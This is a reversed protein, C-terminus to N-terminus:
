PPLQAGSSAGPALGLLRRSSAARAASTSSASRRAGRGAGRGDVGGALVRALKRAPISRAKRAPPAPPAAAASSHARRRAASTLRREPRRFWVCGCAALSRGGCWRGHWRGAPRAPEAKAVGVRQTEADPRGAPLLLPGPLQAGVQLAQLALQLARAARPPAGNSLLERARQPATGRATAVVAASAAAAVAPGAATTAFTTAARLLLHLGHWGATAAPARCPLPPREVPLALGRNAALRAHRCACCDCAMCEFTWVYLSSAAM